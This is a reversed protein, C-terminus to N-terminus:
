PSLEQVAQSNLNSSDNNLIRKWDSADMLVKGCRKCCKGAYQTVGNDCNCHKCKVGM